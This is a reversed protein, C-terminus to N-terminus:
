GPSRGRQRSARAVPLAPPLAGNAAARSQKATSSTRARAGACHARDCRLCSVPGMRVIMHGPLSLVRLGWSPAPKPSVLRGAKAGGGGKTMAKSLSSPHVPAFGDLGRLKRDMHTGDLHLEDDITSSRILDETLLLM